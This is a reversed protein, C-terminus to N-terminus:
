LIRPIQKTIESFFFFSTCRYFMIAKGRSVYLVAMVVGPTLFTLWGLWPKLETLEQVIQLIIESSCLAIFELLVWILKGM